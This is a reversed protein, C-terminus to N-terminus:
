LLPRRRASNTASSTAYSFNVLINTPPRASHDYNTGAPDGSLDHAKVPLTHCLWIRLFLGGLLRIPPMEFNGKM